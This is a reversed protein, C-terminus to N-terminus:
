SPNDNCSQEPRVSWYGPWDRQANAKVGTELTAQLVSRVLGRSGREANTPGLSASAAISSTPHPADVHTIERAPVGRADRWPACAGAGVSPDQTPSSPSGIGERGPPFGPQHEAQCGPLGCEWKRLGGYSQAPFPPAVQPGMTFFLGPEGDTHEVLFLTGATLCPARSTAGQKPGIWV